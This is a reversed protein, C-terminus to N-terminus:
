DELMKKAMRKGHGNSNYFKKKQIEGFRGQTTTKGRTKRRKTNCITWEYWDIWLLQEYTWGCGWSQRQFDNIKWYSHCDVEHVALYTYNMENENTADRPKIRLSLL